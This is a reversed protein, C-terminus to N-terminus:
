QYAYGETYSYRRENGAFIICNIRFLLKERHKALHVVRDGYAKM